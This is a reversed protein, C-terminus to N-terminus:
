YNTSFFENWLMYMTPRPGCPKLNIDNPTVTTAESRAGGMRGSRRAAIKRPPRIPARSAEMLREKNEDIAHGINLIDTKCTEALRAEEDEENAQLALDKAFDDECRQTM